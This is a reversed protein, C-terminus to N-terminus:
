SVVLYDVKVVVIVVVMLQASWHVSESVLWNVMGSVMKEILTAVM